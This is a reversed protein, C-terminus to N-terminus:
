PLMLWSGAGAGATVPLVESDTNSPKGTPALQDNNAKSSSPDSKVPDKAAHRTHIM